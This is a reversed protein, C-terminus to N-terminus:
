STRVSALSINISNAWSMKKYPTIIMQLISIIKKKNKSIRIKSRTNIKEEDKKLKIKSKIYKKKKLPFQKKKISPQGNM